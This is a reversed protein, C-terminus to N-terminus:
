RGPDDSTRLADAGSAEIGEGLSAVPQAKLGDLVSLLYRALGAAAFSEKADDFANELLRALHAEDGARVAERYGDWRANVVTALDRMKKPVAMDGVGLERMSIDMDAFFVDVLAQSLERGKEGEASLRELALFMHATLVELRGEVTDPVGHRTFLEPRRSAAVISGYFNHATREPHRRGSFWRFM